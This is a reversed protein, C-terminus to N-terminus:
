SQGTKRLHEQWVAEGIMKDKDRAIDTPEATAGIGFIRSVDARPGTRPPPLMDIVITRLYDELTLELEAAALRAWKLEEENLAITVHETM